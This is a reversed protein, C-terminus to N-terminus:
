RQGEAAAGEPDLVYDLSLWLDFRFDCVACTPLMTFPGLFLPARRCRPCLLRIGRGLVQRARRLPIM